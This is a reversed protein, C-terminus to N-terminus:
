HFHANSCTLLHFVRQSQSPLRALQSVPGDKQYKPLETSEDRGLILAGLPSTFDEVRERAVESLDPESKPRHLGGQVLSAAFNVRAIVTRTTLWRRGGPWGAVNPPYFLDSGMRQLWDALYLTSPPNKALNLARIPTILFSMPDSIRRNINADSFFLESRLITEVAKGIHFETSRLQESLQEIAPESVVDEAFFENVLRNALRKATAPHEVLLDSLQDADFAQTKSLITKEGEDHRSPVFRFKGEHVDLGTLARAANQVDSETYNGIGLTFLEMLERGLNENPHGRRNSPADLWNLMAPDRLMARLLTGFNDGSHMRFTENQRKMQLQNNVKQNSTAFHSHWMLTLREQLPHPSYLVRYIWWAKLRDPNPQQVAANGILDALRAFDDPIEERNQGELVRSVADQPSGDLDRLYESWTGGFVARRHLHAVQRLSWEHKKASFPQWHSM